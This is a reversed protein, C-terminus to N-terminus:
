YAMILDKMSISLDALTEEFQNPDFFESPQEKLYSFFIDYTISKDHEILKLYVPLLSDRLTWIRLTENTNERKLEFINIDTSVEKVRNPIPQLDEMNGTFSQIVTKLSFDEATNLYEIVNQLVKHPEDSERTSIDFAKQIGQRNAFAIQTGYRLRFKGGEGMWFEFQLAHSSHIERAHVTAHFFSITKFQQAVEAWTPTQNSWFLVTLFIMAIIGVAGAWALNWRYFWPIGESQKQRAEDNKVAPHYALNERFTLLAKEMRENVDPPIDDSMLQHLEKKMQEEDPSLHDM